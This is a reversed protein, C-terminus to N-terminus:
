RDSGSRPGGGLITLGDLKLSPGNRCTAVRLADSCVTEPRYTSAMRRLLTANAREVQRDRLERIVQDRVRALPQPPLKQLHTLKFVYWADSTQVPGSIAGKHAAFLAHDLADPMEGAGAGMLGSRPSVDRRTSYRSIVATWSTGRALARKAATARARSDTAVLRMTRVEPSGYSQPRARYHHM